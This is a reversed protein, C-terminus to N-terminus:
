VVNNYQKNYKQLLFTLQIISMMSRFIFTFSEDQSQLFAMLFTLRKEIKEMKLKTESRQHHM